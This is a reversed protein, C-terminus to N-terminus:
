GKTVTEDLNLITSAVSAWAALETADLSANRPSEGIALLATAQEPAAIFRTRQKEFLATLARTENESPM